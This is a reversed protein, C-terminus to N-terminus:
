GSHTDRMQYGIAPNWEQWGCMATRCFLFTKPDPHREASIYTNSAFVIIYRMYDPFRSQMAAECCAQDEPPSGM